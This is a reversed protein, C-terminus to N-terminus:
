PSLFCINSVIIRSHTYRSPLSNFICGCLTKLFVKRLNYLSSFFQNDPSVKPVTFLPYLTPLMASAPCRRQNGCQQSTHLGELAPFPRPYPNPRSKAPPRNRPCVPGLTFFPSFFGERHRSPLPSLQVRVLSGMSTFSTSQCTRLTDM